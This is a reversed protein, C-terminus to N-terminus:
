PFVARLIHQAVMPDQDFALLDGRDRAVLRARVLDVVPGAAEHQRAQQVQVIVAERFGHRAAVALVAVTALVILADDVRHQQREGLATRIDQRRFLAHRDCPEADELEELAAGGRHHLREAIRDGLHEVRRFLHADAEVARGVQEGGGVGLRTRITHNLVGAIVTGGVHRRPIRKILAPVIAAVAADAERHARVGGVGAAGIQELGARRPRALEAHRDRRVHRLAAALDLGDALAIAAARRRLIQVPEAQERGVQHRACQMNLM